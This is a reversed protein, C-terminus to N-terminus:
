TQVIALIRPILKAVDHQEMVYARSSARIETDDWLRTGIAKRVVSTFAEANPAALLIGPLSLEALEESVTIVPVGALLPELSAKDLSGTASAHLFLHADEFVYRLESREVPGMFRIRVASGLAEAQGHLEKLYVEDDDTVPGGILTLEAEIGGELLQSVTEILIHLRKIRSIRSVSVLHLPPYNPPTLEPITDTDIGHGMVRKKRTDLRMSEKTATFVDHAFFVGLRLRWSVEKHMYWLATRKGTVRWFAGALILYEPNMHVFVTDYTDRLRIVRQLFDFSYLLLSREGEEKGLSYVTVNEPLSHVGESLCIVTLSEVQKAFELLWTHFFGLIPDERDVKQTVILLRM